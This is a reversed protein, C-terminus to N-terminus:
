RPRIAEPAVGGHGPCASTGGECRQHGSPERGATRRCPGCLHCACPATRTWCGAPRAEGARSHKNKKKRHCDTCADQMQRDEAVQLWPQVLRLGPAPACGPGGLQTSTSRLTPVARPRRGPHVIAPLPPWLRPCQVVADPHGWCHRWGTGLVARPMKHAWLRPSAGAARGPAAGGAAAGFTVRLIAAQQRPPLRWAVARHCQGELCWTSGLTCSGGPGAQIATAAFHWPKWRVTARPPSGPLPDCTEWSGEQFLEAGWTGPQPKGTRAGASGEAPPLEAEGM